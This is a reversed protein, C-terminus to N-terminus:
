DRLASLVSLLCALIILSVEYVNTGAPRTFPLTPIFIASLPQM